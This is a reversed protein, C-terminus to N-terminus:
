EKYCEPGICRIDILIWPTIEMSHPYYEGCTFVPTTGRIAGARNTEKQCRAYVPRTSLLPETLM